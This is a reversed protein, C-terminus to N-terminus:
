LPSLLREQIKNGDTVRVLPSRRHARNGTFHLIDEERAVNANVRHADTDCLRVSILRM